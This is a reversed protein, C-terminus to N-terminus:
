SLRSFDQGGLSLRSATIQPLLGAETKVRRRTHGLALLSVGLIGCEAVGPIGFGQVRFWM